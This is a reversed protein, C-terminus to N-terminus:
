QKLTTFSPLSLFGRSGVELTVLCGDWPSASIVEMLDSYRTMKRNHGEDMGTEYCVTLEIVWVEKINNNWIVIDAHSDTTAIHPPFAYPQSCPLDALIQYNEPLTETVFNAIGEFVADHRENYRQM